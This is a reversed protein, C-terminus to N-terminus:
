ADRFNMETNLVALSWDKDQALHRWSMEEYGIAELNINIVDRRKCRPRGHPRRREREGLLIMYVNIIVGIRAVNGTWRM